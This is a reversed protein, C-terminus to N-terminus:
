ALAGSVRKPNDGAAGTITSAEPLPLEPPPPGIELLLHDRVFTEYNLHTITHKAM